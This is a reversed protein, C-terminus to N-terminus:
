EEGDDQLVTANEDEVEGTSESLEVVEFVGEQGDDEQDVVEEDDEMIMYGDDEMDEEVLYVDSDGVIEEEEVEAVNEFEIDSVLYYQLPNLWVDDKIVEAIEDGCPDTHDTFWKFFSNTDITRKKGKVSERRKKLLDKGRKWRVSTSQSTPDESGLHFEKVLVANDFYPNKDFHFKIRYGEKIDEFQEVEMMSLYQLCETEDEQLITSLHPHNEFTVLWFRPIAKILSNRKDFYPKQLKNYKQVVKLTEESARENLADIENQCADIEELATQTETDYDRNDYNEASIEPEKVKMVKKSTAKSSM